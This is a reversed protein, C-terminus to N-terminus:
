HIRLLEFLEGTAQERHRASANLFMLVASALRRGGIRALASRLPLSGASGNGAALFILREETDRWFDGLPVTSRTAKLTAAVPVAKLLSSYDVCSAGAFKYAPM